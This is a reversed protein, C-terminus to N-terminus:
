VKIEEVWVPDVPFSMGDELICVWETGLGCWHLEVVGLGEVYGKHTPKM